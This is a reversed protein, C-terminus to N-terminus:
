GLAKAVKQYDAAQTPTLYYSVRIVATGAQYDYESLAPIGATVTQIYKIRAAALAASPFVEVSGGFDVDGLTAGQNDSGDLRVAGGQRLRLPRVARQEHPDVPVVADRRRYAAVPLRDAVGGAPDGRLACGLYDLASAAVGVQGAEPGAVGQAAAEGGGGALGPVVENRDAAVATPLVAGLHQEAVEFVDVLPLLVRQVPGPESAAM